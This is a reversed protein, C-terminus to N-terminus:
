AALREVIFQRLSITVAPDALGWTVYLLMTGSTLDTAVQGGQMDIIDGAKASTCYLTHGQCEAAGAATLSLMASLEWMHTTSILFPTAIGSIIPTASDYLDLTLSTSNGGTSLTGRITVRLSDGVAIGPLDTALNISTAFPTKANTSAIVDTTATKTIVDYAVTADPADGEGWTM